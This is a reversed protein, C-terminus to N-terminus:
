PRRQGAEGVHYQGVGGDVGSVGGAGEGVGHCDAGGAHEADPGVVGNLLQLTAVRILHIEIPVNHQRPEDIGMHVEDITTQLQRPHWKSPDSDFIVEDALDLFSDSILMM